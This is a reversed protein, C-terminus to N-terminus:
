DYNIDFVFKDPNYTNTDIQHKIEKLINRTSKDEIFASQYRASTSKYNLVYRFYIYRLIPVINGNKNRRHDTPINLLNNPIFDKHVARKYAKYNHSYWSNPTKTSISIKSMTFYYTYLHEIHRIEM